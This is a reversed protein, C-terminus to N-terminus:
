TWTYGRPLGQFRGARDADIEDLLVDLQPAHAADEESCWGHRREGHHLTWDRTEADYRLQAVPASAGASSGRERRVRWPPSCEGITIWVTAHCEVEIAPDNGAATQDACWSAVEQLAAHIDM